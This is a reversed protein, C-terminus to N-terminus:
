NVITLRNKDVWYAWIVFLWSLNGAYAIMTVDPPPPGFLNMFYIITLLGVLAWFGIGGIRNKASTTTAYFYVGAAFLGVEVILTGPLSNWLGLGWRTEGSIGLPLDPRHTLLDLIWHSVVCLGVVISSRLDRRIGFYVGGLLVGWTIAGLLSHTYPYDYFDLPTVVTTGPVIRVHEFGVLLFLPWLLDVFQAALFLTGLSTRPVAKKAALAVAYHGVFM